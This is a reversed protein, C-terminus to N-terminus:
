SAFVLMPLFPRLPNVNPDNQSINIEENFILLTAPLTRVVLESQTIEGGQMWRRPTLVSRVVSTDVRM